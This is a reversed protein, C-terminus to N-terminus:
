GLFEEIKEKSKSGKGHLVDSLSYLKHWGFKLPLLKTNNQDVTYNGETNTALMNIFTMLCFLKEM